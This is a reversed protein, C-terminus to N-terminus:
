RVSGAIGLLELGTEISFADDTQWAQCGSDAFRGLLEFLSWGLKLQFLM